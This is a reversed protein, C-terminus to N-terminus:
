INLARVASIMDKIKDADKYGDTEVSSSVDVCFPLIVNKRSFLGLIETVNESDIGGALMYPKEINRILDHNFTKGSGGYENESFADLLLWDVALKEAKEVQDFSKVRVAKILKVDNLDNDELKNRLRTIYDEDEDGHLQIIQIVSNKALRVVNDIDEDIFVGVAPISDDLRERLGAATDYDICRKKGAFVFGAYDPKRQNVYDIDEERRLGCIKIQM